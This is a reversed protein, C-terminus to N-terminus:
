ARRALWLSMLLMGVSPLWVGLLIPWHGQESLLLSVQHVLFYLFFLGSCQAVGIMPNVRVGRCALPIALGLVLLMLIPSAWIKQHQVEYARFSADREKAPIKSLLAELQWLSLDQPAADIWEMLQPSDIWSPMSLREFAGSWIPMGQADFRTQTGKLLVWHGLVEDFFAEEAIWQAELSFDTSREEVCLGFLEQTLPEFAQMVWFFRGDPSRYAFPSKRLAGPDEELHAVEMRKLLSQSLELSSPVWVANAYFLLGCLLLGVGWLSRTIRWLSQGAAKLAIIENHKHFQGLAVLLSLMFALPMVTPLFSPLLVAYYLAVQSVHAGLQLLDPLNDFLDELVLLGVCVGMSLLFVKLWELFIYRDIIRGVRKHYLAGWGRPSSFIFGVWKEFFPVGSILKQFIPCV